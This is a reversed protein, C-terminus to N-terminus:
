WNLRFGRENTSEMRQVIDSDVQDRMDAPVHARWMAPYPNSLWFQRPKVYMVRHYGYILPHRFGADWFLKQTKELDIHMWDVDKVADNFESLEPHNEGYEECLSVLEGLHTDGGFLLGISGGPRLVRYAEELCRLKEPFMQFSMNSIVADFSEDGYPLNEANGVRFDVSYGLKAANQEAQKIMEPSYDVGYFEGKEDLYEILKFTSLGTGCALDLVVPCESFRMDRLLLGTLSEIGWRSEGFRESVCLDYVEATQRYAEKIRLKVKDQM